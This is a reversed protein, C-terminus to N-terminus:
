MWEEREREIVGGLETEVFHRLRRAETGVALVLTVGQHEGACFRAAPDADFAARYAEFMARTVGPKPVGQPWPHIGLDTM